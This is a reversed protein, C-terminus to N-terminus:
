SVKPPPKPQREAPQPAPEHMEDKCKALAAGPNKQMENLLANFRALVDPDVESAPATVPADLLGDGHSTHVVLVQLAQVLCCM